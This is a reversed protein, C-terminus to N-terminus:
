LRSCVVPSPLLYVRYSEGPPVELFPLSVAVALEYALGLRGPAMYPVQFSSSTVLVSADSLPHSGKTELRLSTATGLSPVSQSDASPLAVSLLM